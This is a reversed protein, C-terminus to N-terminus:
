CGTCSPTWRLGRGPANRRRRDLTLRPCLDLDARVSGATSSRRVTSCGSGSRRAPGTARSAAAGAPFFSGRRPRPHDAAPAPAAREGAGGLGDALNGTTRTYDCAHNAWESSQKGRAQPGRHTDRARVVVTLEGTVAGLNVTFPTWGGRHRAVEVGDVWVTADHDVAGFHLRVHRGSWADPVTVTRRYWVAELFDTDEIGSLRSEPAFPVTITADLPRTVLGRELGSDATDVEFQWDGNLCLWEPRSFQPRPYEGRAVDAAPPM